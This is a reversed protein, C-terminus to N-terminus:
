HVARAAARVDVPLRVVSAVVALARVAERARLEHGRDSAHAGTAVLAQRAAVADLVLGLEVGVAVALEGARRGLPVAPRSLADLLTLPRGCARLSAGV